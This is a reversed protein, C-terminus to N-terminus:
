SFGGLGRGDLVGIAAAISSGDQVVLAYRASALQALVLEATKEAGGADGTVEAWGDVWDRTLPGLEVQVDTASAEKRLAGALVLTRGGVALGRDELAEDLARHVEAPSVQVVLPFGAEEAVAFGLEVSRAAMGAERPPLMSNARKRGVGVTRRLVWGEVEEVEEAPWARKAAGEIEFSVEPDFRSGLRMWRVSNRGAGTHRSPMGERSPSPLHRRCAVPCSPAM